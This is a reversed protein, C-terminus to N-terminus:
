NGAAKCPTSPSTSWVFLSVSPQRNKAEDKGDPDEAEAKGRNNESFNTSLKAIISNMAFTM